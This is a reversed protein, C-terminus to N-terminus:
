DRGMTAIVKLEIAIPTPLRSVEVTTRAPQNDGFYEGFLRNYLPFDAKMNTLFSTVDVIRDWGSGADEVVLRVNEFVARCQTEFDYSVLNGGADLFETTITAANGSLEQVYLTTSLSSTKRVGPLFITSGATFGRNSNFVPIATVYSQGLTSRTESQAIAMENLKASRLQLTGSASASGFVNKVVNPFSIGGGALFSAISTVQSSVSGPQAFYIKLDNVNSDAANSVTLDGFGFKSSAGTVFFAFEGPALPPPTGSSVTSTVVDVISVSVNSTITTGLITAKGTATNIYRFTLSGSAGGIAGTAGDPRKTRDISFSVQRTELPALTLGPAPVVIWPVDAVVIGQITATSPNTFSVSGSPNQGSPATLDSRTIPVSVNVPSSPADGVVLRVPVAISAFGNGAVTTAGEYKGAPQQTATIFVVASSGPDLTFSTPTQTYFTGTRSLNVAAPTGGFNSVTFRDNPAASGTAQLM